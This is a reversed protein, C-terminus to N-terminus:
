QSLRLRLDYFHLTLKLINALPRCKDHELGNFVNLAASLSFYRDEVSIYGYANWLSQSGLNM